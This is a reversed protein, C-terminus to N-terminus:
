CGVAAHYRPKAQRALCTVRLDSAPTSRSYFRMWSTLSPSLLLYKRAARDPKQVRIRRHPGHPLV